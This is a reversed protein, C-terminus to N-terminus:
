FSINFSIAIRDEDCLNPEVYHLLWSPFIVMLGEEPKFKAVNDLWPNHSVNKASSYTALDLYGLNEEYLPTSVCKEIRTDHFCIKGASFKQDETTTDSQPIKVYYAGSLSSNAHVHPPNFEKQKNVNGWFCSIQPPRGKEKLVGMFEAIGMSLQEASDLVKKLWENSNIFTERGGYINEDSGEDNKFCHKLLNLNIEKFNDLKKTWISTIFLDHRITDNM